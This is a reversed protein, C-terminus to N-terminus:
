ETYPEPIVGAATGGIAGAEGLSLRREGQAARQSANELVRVAAAVEAPDSSMLMRATRDAIDDSVAAGRFARIAMNALSAGWGGTAVDVAAAGVDPGEDFRERAQLRRATPSGLLIRNSQDFLQAERELAAQFLSYQAPSDFMAELKQRTEPSGILRQAANFNGSPNMITGYISRAAGTRFAEREAANLANDGTGFLRGIEEHKLRGFDNMGSRMADLVSADDSFENVARRYEPVLEKTRNRLADRLESMSSAGARSVADPSSFGTNIQADLARKMYDLTRVDPVTQALELIDAGTDPDKGTVRYIERLRFEEPDFAAGTRISRVQAASADQAALRRATDWAGRYEPLELLSTIQPDFVEGVRYAERYAPAARARMTTVLAAEDNFFDGPQIGEEVQRYVRDRAGNRQDGLAAEARRGSPGSRQTVTEALDVLAPDVNAVVSPVGMARDAALRTPIDSPELGAESLARNVRDAAGREITAETPYMRERLWRQVANGGRMAAPIVVGVPAGILASGTGAAIRSDPEAAGAGAIGGEIAGVTAGKGYPTALLRGIRPAQGASVAGLTGLVGAEFATGEDMQDNIGVGTAAGAAAGAGARAATNGALRSALTGLAGATRATGAVAAPATAGGTFPMAMYAGIAPLVGGAFEALPAGYPNREQFRNYEQNIRAREGEYPRGTIRSRLWAEAEDGWGMGVGQGILARAFNLSDSM